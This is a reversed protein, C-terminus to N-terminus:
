GSPDVDDLRKGGLTAQAVGDMLQKALPMTAEGLRDVADQIPQLDEAEVAVKLGDVALDIEQRQEPSLKEGASALGKETARLIQRAEVRLEVLRRSTFDAEAHEISERVMTNVEDETLGDSPQVTLTAENGSREERASVKLMGDADILFKVAIRPMGAPMPPLSSLKFRGLSRCDKALEREGQVVNFDIGTQNDVYTTFEEGSRAPITSNRPLLISVAGGITEIGLSLPTVDLLLIDRFGGGLVHSQVAAGLAVVEDPNLATHPERDFFERVRDRLLPIRTSGGVLVVEDIGDVSLGADRVAQECRDITRRIWPEALEEFQARTVTREFPAPVHDGQLALLAQDSDSLEIKAREAADRLAQLANPDKRPDAGGGDVVEDALLNMLERDLDDGGLLTDGCTSLVKFVGGAIQLISIDFTGGGLDYVAVVADKKRDLGYALAAATPENVIRLVDLGAIRGADRTAQRQPEDFYAPVTIVVKRVPRRLHAEARAKMEKLILASLEEPTMERDDIAVRLVTRGDSMTREIVQYPVLRVEEALQALTKGMLRKVSYVSHTPDALARRRADTGVLLSGNPAFSLVSPVLVTGDPGKIVQPGESTWVAALSNTTGLDIGLVPEGKEEASLTLDVLQSTM